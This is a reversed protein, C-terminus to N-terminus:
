ESCLAPFTCDDWNLNGGLLFLASFDYSTNRMEFAKKKLRCGQCLLQFHLTGPRGATFKVRCVVWDM